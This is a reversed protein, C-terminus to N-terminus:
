RIGVKFDNKIKAATQKRMYKRINYITSRSIVLDNLSHGLAEAVASIIHIAKYDSLKAADLAAVVRENIFNLKTSKSPGADMSFESIDESDSESTPEFIM